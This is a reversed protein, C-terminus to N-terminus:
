PDAKQFERDTRNAAESKKNMTSDTLGVVEVILYGVIVIIAIAGVMKGAAKPKMVLAVVIAVVIAITIETNNNYFNQLFEM